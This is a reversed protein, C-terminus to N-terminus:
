YLPPSAASAAGGTTARIVGSEDVFFSRNGANLDPTALLSYTGATPAAPMTFSYGSKHGTAIIDAILGDGALQVLTGYGAPSHRHRYLEQGKSVERLVSIANVENAQKRSSLMNPLSVSALITIVLIVILLELLTFGRRYARTKPKM